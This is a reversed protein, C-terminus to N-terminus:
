SASQKLQYTLQRSTVEVKYKKEYLSILKRLRAQTLESVEEAWVLKILEASSIPALSNSLIYHLKEIKSVIKILESEKWERKHVTGLYKKLSFSFLNEEGKYNFNDGYLESNHKSLKQWFKHATERDGISLHKIVELQEYLEPFEGFQSVYIYLPKDQVLHDLLSKMYSFNAKVVTGNLDKYQELISYCSDYHGQTLYIGFLNVLFFPRFVEVEPVKKELTSILLTQAKLLQKSLCYYFIEAHIIQLKGFESKVPIEKVRDLVEGMKLIDRRNGHVLCLIILPNLIFEQESIEDLLKISKELNEIAHTFHSHQNYVLGILYLRVGELFSENLPSSKLIELSPHKKNKKFHYFASLLKKENVTYNKAKMWKLFKKQDLHILCFTERFLSFPRPDNKKM